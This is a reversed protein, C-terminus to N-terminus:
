FKFIKKLDKGLDKIKNEMKKAPKSESSPQTQAPQASSTAVQAPAPEKKKIGFIKGLADTAKKEVSQKIQKSAADKLMKDLPIGVSPSTLSGKLSVPVALAESNGVLQKLV